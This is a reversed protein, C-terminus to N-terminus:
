YTRVDSRIKSSLDVRVGLVLVIRRPPDPSTSTPAVYIEDISPVPSANPAAPAVPIKV